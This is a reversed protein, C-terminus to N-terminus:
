PKLEQMLDLFEKKFRIGAEQKELWAGHLKKEAMLVPLWTKRLWKRDAIIPLFPCVVTELFELLRRRRSRYFGLGDAITECANFVMYAYTEYRAKEDPEFNTYQKTKAPNRFAPNEVGKELVQQYLTDFNAYLAANRTLVWAPLGVLLAILGLVVTPNQKAWTLIEGWLSPQALLVMLTEM